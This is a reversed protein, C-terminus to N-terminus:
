AASLRYQRVSTGLADATTTLELADGAIAATAERADATMAAIQAVHGSMQNAAQAHQQIAAAIERVSDRALASQERITRITAGANGAHSLGAEVKQVADAIRETVQGRVAMIEEIMRSIEGTSRGTEDSLKRVEDAVVAFGRGADGARAAEIAANLALLNTQEAIGKIIRVVDQVAASKEGLSEVVVAAENVSNAMSQMASVADEIVTAGQTASQASQEAAGRAQQASESVSKMSASIEEVTCAAAAAAKSQDSSGDAIRRAADALTTSARTVQLASSGATQLTTVLRSQMRELAAIMPSDAVARRDFAHDLRGDAVHRAFAVAQESRELLRALMVALYCLVGAEVVVYAAHLLVWGFGQSESFVYVGVGARQLADFGLHHVAIVGAAFVVPRWDCYALLFALLVFIGFHMEVLGHNLQIMLAPYIMMSAAIALRVALSGPAALYLGLPVALAPAGVLLAQALGGGSAGMGICIVLLLACTGLMLRDTSCQLVQLLTPGAAPNAADNM